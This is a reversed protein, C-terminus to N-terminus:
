CGGSRYRADLEILIDRVADILHNVAEDTDGNTMSAMAFFLNNTTQQLNSM